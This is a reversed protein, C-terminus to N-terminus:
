PTPPGSGPKTTTTPPPTSTTVPPTTPEPTPSPTPSPISGLPNEDGVFNPQNFKTRDKPLNMAKTADNMFKTWIARPFGSGWVTGNNKDLLAKEEDKNGVWVAAALKTTFGVNWAHANKNMDHNYEWTGTKTAAQFGQININPAVQSMAYTLDNIQQQNLIRGQNPNPLTEGYLVEDGKKVSRVFHANARLGGAAFTAAGNAHDMVTVPYQGIGLVIDFKSPTFKTMDTQSRLDQRERDDNWMYNIGAQKAMELVKAPTLSYTLDYFPVNLSATTAELLTCAGTKGKKTAADYDSPCFSANRIPNDDPRGFQKHPEWQWYSKLSYGARLAAALTYIKFSSGPPFRGVGTAENKEDFYFGAYDNGKGDHGGFYALIRGTGPEIAVLASQLNAPQGNLISNAVTEDAAAEAAAQAGKDLTTVISYGGGEISQWTKDKFQSGETHTLEDLVHNIILGTPKEEGQGSQPVYPLWCDKVVAPAACIDPFKLGDAEEQTLYQGPNESGLEVMQNRVYGWRDTANEKAKDSRTPDYGPFEDPNDPDPEPQKVMAVLAMAESKTIQQEPPADKNITKGFYAKAAAEAGRAQRGFPVSNLYSELIETKTLDDSMKWALVAERLKRNYTAGKLDFTLRAYQQTITSAGQTSGGTFNNWAARMVGKFDVGANTWFTADESAVIAEKIADNMKDYPVPYRTEVGLKALVTVGDSYYLTTTDPFTLADGKEVSDVYYTGGVFGIGTIMIFVAIAAV